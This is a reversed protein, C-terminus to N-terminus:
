DEKIMTQSYELEITTNMHIDGSYRNQEFVKSVFHSGLPKWGTKIFGSVQKSLSEANSGTLIKYEM